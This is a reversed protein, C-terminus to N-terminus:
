FPNKFSDPGFSGPARRIWYTGASPEWRRRLFDKGMARALIGIPVIATVFLVAMILPQMVKHLVLGFRTWALNLPHLWGPAVLALALFALAAGLWWTWGAHGKLLNIAMGAACAGSMVLGFNRDTGGADGEQDDRFREHFGTETRVGSRREVM